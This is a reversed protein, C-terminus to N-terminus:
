TSTPLSEPDFRVASCAVQVPVNTNDSDVKVYMRAFRHILQCGTAERMDVFHICQENAGWRLELSQNEKSYHTLDHRLGEVKDLYIRKEIGLDPIYVDFAEDLVAVVVSEKVMGGIGRLFACLHIKDSQEQASKSASKRENCHKAIGGLESLEPVNTVANPNIDMEMALELMRHVVVDAYRRIPSTFHTYLPMSLAYHQTANLHMDDNSVSIGLGELKGLIDEVTMKDYDYKPKEDQTVSKDMLVAKQLQVAYAKHIEIGECIYEALKMPKTLMQVITRKVSTNNMDYVISKTRKPQIDGEWIENLSRQIQGSTKADMTVGCASLAAVVKNIQKSDPSPQRRLFAHSPFEEHLRIAVSCNAQLMFEEVLRNSDKQGYTKFSVPFGNEDREFMLKINDLKLSGNKFRRQRMQLALKHLLIVDDACQKATHDGSIDPLHQEIDKFGECSEHKDICLQAHEYSMKVCSKIISRAFWTKIVKGEANMKWFVSFALREVGPNLSCLKECLVNPLMPYNRQVLYVTTARRRAEEDLASNAKVFYTVDAIHVGVIYGGDETKKISLADDLDKATAPDITFVRENRFDTRSAYEEAPISWTKIPLCNIVDDSFPDTSVDFDVLLAKTEADIDGNQGLHEGLHGEAMASKPSWSYITASFLQSRYMESILKRSEDSFLDAPAEARAIALRPVKSDLPKFCVMDPDLYSSNDMSVFTGIVIRNHVKRQIRVVKATKRLFEDPYDEANETLRREESATLNMAQAYDTKLPRWNTRDLLELAVEDGHLARNRDNMTPLLVDGMLVDVPVYAERYNKQNIRVKGTYLKGSTVGAEVDRDSMYEDFFPVRGRGGGASSGHSPTSHNSRRGNRSRTPTPTNNSYTRHREKTRSTPTTSSSSNGEVKVEKQRGDNRCNSQSAIQKHQKTPTFLEHIKVPTPLRSDSSMENGEDDGNSADVLWESGRQSKHRRSSANRNRRSNTNRNPTSQNVTSTSPDHDPTPLCPENIVERDVDEVGGKTGGRRRNFGSSRARIPTSQKCKPTSAAPPSICPRHKEADTGLSIDYGNNPSQSVSTRERDPTTLLGDSPIARAVNEHCGNHQSHSQHRDQSDQASHSSQRGKKDNHDSSREKRRRSKTKSVPRPDIDMSSPKGIDTNVCRGSVVTNSKEVTSSESTCNSKVCATSNLIALAAVDQTINQM